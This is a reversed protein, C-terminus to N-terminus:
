NTEATEKDSDNSTGNSQGGLLPDPNLKEDDDRGANLRPLVTSALKLIVAKKFENDYKLVDNNDKVDELVDKIVNLTLRRVKKSLERDQVTPPGNGGSNGEANKNGEKAM